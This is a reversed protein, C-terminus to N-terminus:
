QDAFISSMEKYGGGTVVNMSAITIKRFETLARRMKSAADQFTMGKAIVKVLSLLSFKSGFISYFSFVPRVRVTYFLFTALSFDLCIFDKKLPRLEILIADYVKRTSQFLREPSFESLKSERYRGSNTTSKV